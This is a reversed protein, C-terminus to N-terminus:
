VHIFFQLLDLLAIKNKLGIATEALLCQCFIAIGIKLIGLLVVEDSKLM